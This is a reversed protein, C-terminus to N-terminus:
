NSNKSLVETHSVHSNPMKGSQREEEGSKPFLAKRKGDLYVFEMGMETTNREKVTELLGMKKVIPICASRLDVAQGGLRPEPSREVITIQATPLFRHLWYVCSPGCIGSGSILINLPRASM